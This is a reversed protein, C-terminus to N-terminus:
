DFVTLHLNDFSPVFFPGHFVYEFTLGVFLVEELVESILGVVELVKFLEGLGDLKAL